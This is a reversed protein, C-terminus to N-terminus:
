AGATAQNAAGATAQNAAGATAQNAAGATAQNPAGDTAAQNAAGDTARDAAAQNATGDASRDTAQLPSDIKRTAEGAKCAATEHTELVFAAEGTSLPLRMKGVPLDSHRM